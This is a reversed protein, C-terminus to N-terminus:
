AAGAGPGGPGGLGLWALSTGDSPEFVARDEGCRTCVEYQAGAGGKEPNREVVWDHRGVLCRLARM